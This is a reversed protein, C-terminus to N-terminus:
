SPKNQGACSLLIEDLVTRSEATLHHRLAWDNWVSLLQLIDPKTLTSFCYEDWRERTSEIWLETLFTKLRTRQEASLTEWEARHAHRIRELAHEVAKDRHLLFRRRGLNDETSSSM